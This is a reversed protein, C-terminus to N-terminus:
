AVPVEYAGPAAADFGLAAFSEVMHPPPPASITLRRGNLPVSLRAAHLHLKKPLNALAGQGHGYKGDGALPTGLIACHVRVQHTRGTEPALALWAAKTGARDIIRFRTRAKAGAGKEVAAMREGGQMAQKALPATVVGERVSPVGAVLGWYLKEVDRGKFAAGLARAVPATRALLLVGSTDRDLRHVLRPREGEKTLVGLMGDIHRVTGTGGQVALGHPKNLAIVDADEYLILSTIFAADEHTLTRAAPAPAPRDELPPVRVTQGAELRTNAKVRGGDVRVQGKRLLKELRGHTLQPFHQKFWRDLRM